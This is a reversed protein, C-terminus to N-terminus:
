NPQEDHEVEEGCMPCFRLRNHNLYDNSLFEKRNSQLCQLVYGEDQVPIFQHKENFSM